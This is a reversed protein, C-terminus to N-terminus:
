FQKRSFPVVPPVLGGARFETKKWVCSRVFVDIPRSSHRTYSSIKATFENGERKVPRARTPLARFFKCFVRGRSGLRASVSLSRPFKSRKWGGVILAVAIKRCRGCSSLSEHASNRSTAVALDSSRRNSCRQPIDNESDAPIM